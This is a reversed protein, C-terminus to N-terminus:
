RRAKTHTALAALIRTTNESSEKRLSEISTKLEEFREDDHREHNTQQTSMDVLRQGIPTATLPLAREEQITKLAKEAAELKEAELAKIKASLQPVSGEVKDDTLAKLKFETSFIQRLLVIITVAISAVAAWGEASM